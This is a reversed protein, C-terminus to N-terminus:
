WPFRFIEPSTSDQDLSKHVKRAWLLAIGGAVFLLTVIIAILFKPLILALIGICILTLGPAYLGWPFSQSNM